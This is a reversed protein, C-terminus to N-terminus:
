GGCKRFPCCHGEYDGARAENWAGRGHADATGSDNDGADVDEIRRGQVDPQYQQARRAGPRDTHGGSTYDCRSREIQRDGQASIYEVVAAMEGTTRAAGTM